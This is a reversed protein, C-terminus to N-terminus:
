FTTVEFDYSKSTNNFKWFYRFLIFDNFRLIPRFTRCNLERYKKIKWFIIYLIISKFKSILDLSGPLKREITTFCFISLHFLYIHFSNQFDNAFSCFLLQQNIIMYYFLPLYLFIYLLYLLIM